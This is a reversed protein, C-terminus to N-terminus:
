SGLINVARAIVLALASLAILSQSAMLAKAWRSLPLTDTPSFATANTFSVYLYDVFTPEWDPRAIHPDSMQPFLFDPHPNIGASRTFPGGRDFEWYWLGFAVINTVYIVAGSGLLTIPDQTASRSLIAHILLAASAANAITLLATLTLSAVRALPHSRTLRMPNYLTLGILLAVELSPLLWRPRVALRDPLVSQLVVAVVVAAVVPLRAEGPTRRLWAPLRQAETAWYRVAWGPHEGADVEPEM